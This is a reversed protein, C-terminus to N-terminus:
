DPEDSARPHRRRLYAIIALVLLTVSLPLTTADAHQKVLPRDSGSSIETPESDVPSTRKGSRFRSFPGPMLLALFIGLIGPVFLCLAISEWLIDRPTIRLHDPDWGFLEIDGFPYIDIHDWSPLAWMFAVAVLLYVGAAAASWEIMKYRPDLAEEWDRENDASRYLRIIKQLIILVPAAIFLAGSLQTFGRAHAQVMLDSSGFEAKIQELFILSDYLLFSVAGAITMATLGISLMILKKNGDPAEAAHQTVMWAIGAVLLMAGLALMGAAPMFSIWAAKCAQKIAENDTLSAQNAPVIIIVPADGLKVSVTEPQPAKTAAIAGFIYADLALVVV